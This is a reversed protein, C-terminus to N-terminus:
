SQIPTTCKLRLAVYVAFIHSVIKIPATEMSYNLCTNCMLTWINIVIDIYIDILKM